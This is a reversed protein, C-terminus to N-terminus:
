FGKTLAGDVSLSVGNVYGGADSALFVIVNAIEGPTAFRQAPISAQSEALLDDYQRNERAARASLLDKLRDTLVGGPCVVNVTINFPALDSAIAKTFASVGARTTASLVMQASPEKAITSTISVIRGWKQEQMLPVVARCFRVTAMLNTEVASQWAGTDHELLTGIPPGGANNVLVHVSGWLSVCREVARAALAPEAVDGVLASVDAGENRLTKEADALVEPRRAIMLVKAGERAFALATAFGMGRSAGTVIAVRDRLGFEM